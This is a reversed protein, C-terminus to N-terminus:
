FSTLSGLSPLSLPSFIPGVVSSGGSLGQTASLADRAAGANYSSGGGGFLGSLAGSSYLGGGIGLLSNFGNAAANGAALQGGATAAGQQQLLNAINTGTQLGASGIGAASNQGLSTLGGLNAYQQQIQQALLAPTFQGLASQVNGGRLGGTASANALIANQGQQQLAQFQPSNQIGNIATSQAGAGNLGLLDQQGTLAGTGATVFPAMTQQYQQLAQQTANVGQQAAASQTAAASKAADAQQNAGTIGGVIKGIANGIFSM